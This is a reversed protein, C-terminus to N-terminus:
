TWLLGLGVCRDAFLALLALCCPTVSVLPSWAKSAIRNSTSTPQTARTCVINVNFLPSGGVRRM